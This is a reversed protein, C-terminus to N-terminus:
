RYRTKRDQKSVLTTEVRTKGKQEKTWKAEEEGTSLDTVKKYKIKKPEFLAYKIKELAGAPPKVPGFVFKIYEEWTGGEIIEKNDLSGLIIKSAKRFRHVDYQTPQSLIEPIVEQIIRSAMIKQVQFDFIAASQEQTEAGKLMIFRKICTSGVLFRKATRPNYIEFNKSLNPQNCLQCTETFKEIAGYDDQLIMGVFEWERRAEEWDDSISNELIREKVLKAERQTIKEEEGVIFFEQKKPRLSSLSRKLM